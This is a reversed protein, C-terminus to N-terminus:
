LGNQRHFQIGTIKWKGIPNRNVSCDLHIRGKM